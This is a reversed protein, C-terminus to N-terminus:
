NDGERVFGVAEIAKRVLQWVPETLRRHGTVDGRRECRAVVLDNRKQGKRALWVAYDGLEESGACTNAILMRSLESVKGTNADHLEVKVVLM